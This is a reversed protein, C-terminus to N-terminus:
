AFYSLQPPILGTAFKQACTKIHVNGDELCFVGHGPFLADVDLKALKQMAQSYPYLSVDYLSQILVQGCVFVSDASFLCKMGDINAYMVMDCLSHGPVMYVTITVNGITIKDQDNLGIVGPCKPYSFDKPYLGGKSPAISTAVEDGTEIAEAEKAPAYVACGTAKRIRAAGCAHDGHYHSLFIAKIDNLHFGHSEIIADMRHTDLGVGSDILICGEGTDIMYVNCDIPHSIGFGWKGSAVLYIHDSIKM